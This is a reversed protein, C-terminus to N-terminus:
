MDKGYNGEAYAKINNIAKGPNKMAWAIVDEFEILEEEHMIGYAILLVAAIELVVKIFM